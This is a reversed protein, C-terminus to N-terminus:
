MLLASPPESPPPQDSAPCPHATQGVPWRQAVAQQCQGPEHHNCTSQAQKQKTYLFVCSFSLRHRDSIAIAAQKHLLQFSHKCRGAFINCICQVHDGAMEWAATYPQM